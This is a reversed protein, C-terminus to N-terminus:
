VSINLEGAAARQEWWKALEAHPLDEEPGNLYRGSTHQLVDNAGSLFVINHSSNLTKIFYSFHEREGLLLLAARSFFSARRSAAWATWRREWELPTLELTDEAPKGRALVADAGTQIDYLARVVAQRLGAEARVEKLGLRQLKGDLMGAEVLCNEFFREASPYNLM